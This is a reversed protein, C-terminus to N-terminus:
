FKNHIKSKAGEASTKHLGKTRSPTSSPLSSSGTHEYLTAFTKQLKKRNMGWKARKTRRLKPCPDQYNQSWWPSFMARTIVKVYHNCFTRLHKETCDYFERVFVTKYIGYDSDIMVQQKGYREKLLAVANNYNDNTLEIGMLMESAQGWMQSRLFNFKDVNQLDNNRPIKSEFTDWFEQWILINGDFKKLKLQPPRVSNVKDKTKNNSGTELRIAIREQTEVKTKEVTLKEM